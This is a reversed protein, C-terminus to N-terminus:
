IIVLREIFFGIFSSSMVYLRCSCTHQEATMDTAKKTPFNKSSDGKHKEYVLQLFHLSIHIQARHFKDIGDLLHSFRLCWSSSMMFCVFECRLASVCVSM